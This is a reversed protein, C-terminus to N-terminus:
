CPLVPIEIGTKQKKDWSKYDKQVAVNESGIYIGM